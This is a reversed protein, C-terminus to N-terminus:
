DVEVWTCSYDSNFVIKRKVGDSCNIVLDGNFINDIRNNLVSVARAIAQNEVPHTSTIDLEADMTVFDEPEPIYENIDDGEPFLKFIKAGDEDYGIITQPNNHPNLEVEYWYDVAKSIVSGIKTDEETLYIDVKEGVETVPFDKQLVVNEADKKGYIKVRVVDGIQFIHNEETEVDKASVSFYVVDGRTAYISNDDNLYFM